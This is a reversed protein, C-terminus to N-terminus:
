PPSVQPRVSSVDEGARLKLGRQGQIVKASSVQEGVESVELTAVVAGGRLLYLVDRVEIGSDRGVDILVTPPMADGDVRVVVASIRPMPRQGSLRAVNVGASELRSLVAESRETRRVATRLDGEVRGLEREKGALKQDLARAEARTKALSEARQTALAQADALEREREAALSEAMELARKREESVAELERLAAQRRALLQETERLATQLRDANARSDQELTALEVRSTVLSSNLAAVQRASSEARADLDAVRKREAEVEQELRVLRYRDRGAGDARQELGRMRADSGALLIEDMALRGTGLLVTLVALAGVWKNRLNM